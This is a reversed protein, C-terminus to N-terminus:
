PHSMPLCSPSSGAEGPGPCVGEARLSQGWSAPCSPSPQAPISKALGRHGHVHAMGRLGKLHGSLRLGVKGDQSTLAAIHCAPSPSPRTHSSLDGLSSKLYSHTVSLCLDWGRM